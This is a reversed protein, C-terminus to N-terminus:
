FFSSPYLFLFAGSVRSSKHFPDVRIERILVFKLLYFNTDM